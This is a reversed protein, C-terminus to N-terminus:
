RHSKTNKLLYEERKVLPYTETPDIVVSEIPSNTEISIENEIRKGDIEKKLIEGNSQKFAIEISTVIADGKRVVNCNTLYHGDKKESAIDSIEYELYKNTKYWQDFFWSLNKGSINECIQEFMELTVNIGKYHNLCYKFIEFFVNEGVEYALMTLITYSKGHKIVNNWDFGQKDLSDVLQMVTTNYGKKFGYIYRYSFVHYDKPVDRSQSYLWDTYIGMSIGFWQPYNLPELVYNFGWYQHGIEHATIWTSHTNANEGKQDIGRHVCVINPSVPWGGYPKDAGPIITLIPQPYFGITDAYFNIVDEAIELLKKGWKVDNDNYLSQILIGDETITEDVLLERSMVIGYSPIGKAETQIHIQNDQEFKKIIKGSTAIIFDPPYTIDVKYDSHKQYYPIFKGNGYYHLMPFDYSNLLIQNNHYYKNQKVSKFKLRLELSNSFDLESPAKVIIGQFGDISDYALHYDCEINNIQIKITSENTSDILLLFPLEKIDDPLQSFTMAMIGSFQRNTSDYALDIQYQYNDSLTQAQLIKIYCFIIPLFIIFKKM